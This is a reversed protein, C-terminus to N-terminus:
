EGGGDGDVKVLKMGCIPCRGPVDAHVESHMPCTYDAAARTTPATAPADPGTGNMDTGNMDMGPLDHKMGDTTEGPLPVLADNDGPGVHGHPDPPLPAANAPDLDANVPIALTTSPPPVPTALANPNAPHDGVTAPDTPLPGACGAVALLAVATMLPSRSM